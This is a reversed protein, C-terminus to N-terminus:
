QWLATLSAKGHRPLSANEIFTMMPVKLSARVTRVRYVTLIMSNWPRVGSKGWRRVTVLGMTQWWGEGSGPDSTGSVPSRSPMSIEELDRTGATPFNPWHPLGTFQFHSPWIYFCPKVRRQVPARVNEIPLRLDEVTECRCSGYTFWRPYNYIPVPINGLRWRPFTFVISTPQLM